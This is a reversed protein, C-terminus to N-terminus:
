PLLINGPVWYLLWALDRNEEQCGPSEHGEEWDACELVFAGRIPLDGDGARHFGGLGTNDKNRLESGLQRLLQPNLVIPKSL